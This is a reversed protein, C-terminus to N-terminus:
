KFTSPNVQNGNGDLFYIFAGIPETTEVSTEPDVVLYPESSIHTVTEIAELKRMSSRKIDLLQTQLNFVEHEVHDLLRRDSTTEKKEDEKQHYYVVQEVSHGM